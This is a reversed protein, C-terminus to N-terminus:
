LSLWEKVKEKEKNSIKSLLHFIQYFISEQWCCYNEIDLFLLLYLFSPLLEILSIELKELLLHLHLLVRM